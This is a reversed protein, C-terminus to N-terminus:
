KNIKAEADKGHTKEAAATSKLPKHRDQTLEMAGDGSCAMYGWQEETPTLASIEGECVDINIAPGQEM